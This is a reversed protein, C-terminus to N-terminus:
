CITLTREKMGTIYISRIYVRSFSSYPLFFEEASYKKNTTFKHYQEWDWSKDTM